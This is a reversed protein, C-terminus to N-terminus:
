SIGAVHPNLQIQHATTCARHVLHMNSSLNSTVPNWCNWMQQIPM